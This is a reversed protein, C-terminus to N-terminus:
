RVDSYINTHGNIHTVTDKYHERKPHKIVRPIPSPINFTSGGHM